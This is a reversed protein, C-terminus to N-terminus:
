EGVRHSGSRWRCWEGSFIEGERKGRNSRSRSSSTARRRGAGPARRAPGGESTKKWATALGRRGAEDGCGRGRSRARSSRSPAGSGAGGRAAARPGRRGAGSWRRQRAEVEVAGVLRASGEARWRQHPGHGGGGEAGHAVAEDARGVDHGGVGAARRVRVGAGYSAGGARLPRM